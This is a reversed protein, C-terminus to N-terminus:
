IGRLMTLKEDDKPVYHRLSGAKKGSIHPVDYLRSETTPKVLRRLIVVNRSFIKVKIEIEKVSSSM